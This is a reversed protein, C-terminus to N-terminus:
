DMPPLQHWQKNAEERSVTYLIDNRMRYVITRKRLFTVV